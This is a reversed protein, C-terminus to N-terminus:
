KKFIKNLTEKLNAWEKAMDEAQKETLVKGYAKKRDVVIKRYYFLNVDVSADYEYQKKVDAINQFTDDVFIIAKFIKGARGLIHALTKGKDGGRTMLVGNAFSIYQKGWPYDLVISGGDAYKLTKKDFFLKNKKLEQETAGRIAPDRATLALTTAGISQWMKLYTPLTSETLHMSGLNHLLNSVIYLSDKRNESFVRQAPTVKAELSDSGNQWQYWIDGGLDVDTTLVTNDIDLVILVSDATYQQIKQVIVKAVVAFETTTTYQSNPLIKQTQAVCPISLWCLLCFLQTTIKMM